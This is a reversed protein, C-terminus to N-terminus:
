SGSTIFTAYVISAPIITTQNGTIQTIIGDFNPLIGISDTSKSGRKPHWKYHTLTDTSAVHLWQRKNEVRM